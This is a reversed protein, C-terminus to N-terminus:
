HKKRVIKAVFAGTLQKVAQRKAASAFRLGLGLGILLVVAFALIPAIAASSGADSAVTVSRTPTAAAVVPASPRSAPEAAPEAESTEESSGSALAPGSASRVGPAQVRRLGDEAIRAIRPDGNRALDALIAERDERLASAYVIDTVLLQANEATVGAAQQQLRACVAENQAVREAAWASWAEPTGLDRGAWATMVRRAAAAVNPASDAIRETLAPATREIRWAQLVGIAGERVSADEDRLQAAVRDVLPADPVPWSRMASLLARRLKAGGSANAVAAVVQGAADTPLAPLSRLLRAADEGSAQALWPALRQAALDPTRTFTDATLPSADAAWCSACLALALLCTAPRRM